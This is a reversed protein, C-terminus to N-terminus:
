HTLTSAELGSLRSNLEPDDITSLSSWTQINTQSRWMHATFCVCVCVYVCVCVCVCMCVCVFIFIRRMFHIYEFLKLNTMHIYANIYSHIEYGNM